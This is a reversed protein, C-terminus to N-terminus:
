KKMKLLRISTYISFSIYIVLSLTVIISNNLEFWSVKYSLWLYTLIYGIIVNKNKYFSIFFLGLLGLSLFIYDLFSLANKTFILTLNILMIIGNFMELKGFPLIVALFILISLNKITLKNKMM